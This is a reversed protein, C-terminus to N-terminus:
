VKNNILILITEIWFWLYKTNYEKYIYTKTLM